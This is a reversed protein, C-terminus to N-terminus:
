YSCDRPLSQEYKKQDANPFPPDFFGKYRLHDGNYLSGGNRISFRM